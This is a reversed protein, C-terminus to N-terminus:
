RPGHGGVLGRATEAAVIVQLAVGLEAARALALDSERDLLEAPTIRGEYLATEAAQIAREAVRIRQAAVDLQQPAAQLPVLAQELELDTQRQLADLGLRAARAELRAGRAEQWLAGSPKWSLVVSADWSGQWQAEPPFYRTNPNAYQAGFRLAVSPLLGGTTARAKAEAAEVMAETQDVAAARGEPVSLDALTRATTVVDVEAPSGAKGLFVELGKAAVAAVNQAEFLRQEAEARKLAVVSLELETSRGAAVLRELTQERTRASELVTAQIEVRDNAVELGYWAQVLGLWLSAQVGDEGAMAADTVARAAKRGQLLAGGAFVPQTIAIDLAYQQEISEGFQIPDPTSGDPLQIPIEILSPEVYSLRTTRAQLEVQPFLRATAANADARAADVQVEASLAAPHQLTLQWAEDLTLEQAAAPASIAYTGAMVALGVTVARARTKSGPLRVSDALDYLVPIVILTLLTSALLGGIVATALPAFREAGLAWAMALPVMGVVTSLSTMMIPRFRSRVGQTIAERREAGEERRRRIVDILLISNNVVTGVLLVLGVMVPMSVPESSLWLAVSVGVLSLPVAMMVTVPHVWSRFQAVLLLYVAIVSIALASMISTRSEILDTNEGEISVSYGVPLVLASLAEEADAVVFSLPRGDIQARVDLVPDLDESTFLGQEVVERTDAVARLPITEGSGPVFTPWSLFESADPDVTRAFRVQIPEASALERRWTGAGIGETGAALQQAVSLPSQGLAAAQRQDVSLLVRRM